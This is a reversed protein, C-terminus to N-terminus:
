GTLLPTDSSASAVIAGAEDHRETVKGAYFEARRLEVQREFGFRRRRQLDNM